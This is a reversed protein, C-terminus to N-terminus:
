PLLSLQRGLERLEKQRSVTTAPISFLEAKIQSVQRKRNKIAPELEARRGACDDLIEQAKIRENGFGTVQESQKLFNAAKEEAALVEVLQDEHKALVEKASELRESLQSHQNEYEQIEFATLQKASTDNMIM